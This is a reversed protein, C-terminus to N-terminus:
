ALRRVPQGDVMDSRVYFAASNAHEAAIIKMRVDFGQARWFNRIRSAMATAGAKTCNDDM